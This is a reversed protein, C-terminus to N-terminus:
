GCKNKLDCQQCSICPHISVLDQDQRRHPPPLTPQSLPSSKNGQWWIGNGVELSREKLKLFEIVEEGSWKSLPLFCEGQHWWLRLSCNYSRFGHPWGADEWSGKVSKLQWGGKRLMSTHVSYDLNGVTRTQIRGSAFESDLIQTCTSKKSTVRSFVLFTLFLMPFHSLFPLTVFLFPVIM